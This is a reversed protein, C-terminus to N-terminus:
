MTGHEAGNPNHLSTLPTRSWNMWASSFSAVCLVAAANLENRLSGMCGVQYEMMGPQAARMMAM